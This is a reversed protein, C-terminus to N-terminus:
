KTAPERQPQDENEDLDPNVQDAETPNAQDAEIPNAQDVEM